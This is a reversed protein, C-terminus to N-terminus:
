ARVTVAVFKSNFIRNDKVVFCPSCGCQCYYRQSWGVKTDAPWKLQKFVEPLIEKRYTTYPRVRRNMLNQYLTEGSLFIHITGRARETDRVEVKAIKM